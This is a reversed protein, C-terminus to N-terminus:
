AGRVTGDPNWIPAQGKKVFGIAKVQVQGEPYKRRPTERIVKIYDDESESCTHAHNWVVTQKWAVVVSSAVVAATGTAATTAVTKFFQRRNM